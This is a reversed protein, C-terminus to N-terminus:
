VHGLTMSEEAPLTLLKKHPSEVLLLQLSPKDTLCVRLQSSEIIVKWVDSWLCESAIM